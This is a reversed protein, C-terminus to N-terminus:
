RQPTDIKMDYAKGSISNYQYHISISQGDPLRHTVQMKQWGNSTPFRPDSNLDLKQGAAPDNLVQNWLVQEQLNRPATVQGPKATSITNYDIDMGVVRPPERSPETKPPERAAAKNKVAFPGGAGALIDNFVEWPLVAKDVASAGTRFATIADSRQGLGAGIDIKDTHESNYLSSALSYFKAAASFFDANITTDQYTDGSAHFWQQGCYNAGPPCIDPIAGKPAISDLFASAADNQPLDKGTVDIQKITQTTLDAIAQDIASQACDNVNQCYGQEVAYRPANAAILESEKIHLQRNYSEADLATASGAQGGTVAGVVVAAWQSLANREDQTLNPNDMLAQGIVTGILEQAGGAVTGVSVNNGSAIATLAGLAAHFGIKQPSGDELKLAKSIDGV